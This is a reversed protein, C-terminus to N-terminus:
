HAAFSGTASLTPPLEPLSPDPYYRAGRAVVVVTHQGPSPRGLQVVPTNDGYPQGDVTWSFDFLDTYPPNMTATFTMLSFPGPDNPEISLTLQYGRASSPAPGPGAPAAPKPGLAVRFTYSNAQAEAYGISSAQAFAAYSGPELYVDILEPAFLQGQVQGQRDSDAIFTGRRVDYLRLSAEHWLDSLTIYAEAGSAPVEFRFVDVDTPTQFLGRVTVGAANPQGLQCAREVTDNPEPCPDSTVNPPPVQGAAPAPAVLLATVVVALLARCHHLYSM